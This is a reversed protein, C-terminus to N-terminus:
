DLKQAIKGSGCRVAKTGVAGIQLGSRSKKIELTAGVLPTLDKTSLVGSVAKCEIIVSLPKIQTEPM